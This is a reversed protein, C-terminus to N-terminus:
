DSFLLHRVHVFEWWWVGHFYWFPEKHGFAYCLAGGPHSSHSCVNLCVLTDIRKRVLLLRVGRGGGWVCFRDKKPFTCCVSRSMFSMACLCCAHLKRVHEELHVANCIGFVVCFCVHSAGANTLTELTVYCVRGCIDHSYGLLTWQVLINATRVFNRQSSAALGFRSVHKSWCRQRTLASQMDMSELCKCHCICWAFAWSIAKIFRLNCVWVVLKLVTKDLGDKQSNLGFGPRDCALWKKHGLQHLKSEQRRM